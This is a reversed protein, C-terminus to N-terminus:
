FFKIGLTKSLKALNDASAKKTGTELQCIFATSVNIKEAVQAQSLGKKTRADKIKGGIEKWDM